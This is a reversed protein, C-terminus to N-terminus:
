LFYVSKNLHFHSIQFHESVNFSTNVRCNSSYEVGDVKGRGRAGFWLVCGLSEDLVTNLPYVLHPIRRKLAEELEDRTVDVEILNWKRHPNMRKLEELSQCASLRDPTKYDTQVKTKGRNIKEFSVNILDIPQTPDLLKDTLVALITCDIGGSFLIGIRAHYCKRNEFALCERCISPTASIRDQLSNELRLVIEDCVNMVEEHELLCRFINASSNKISEKLIDEFNYCYFSDNKILWPSQVSPKVEIKNEFLDELENLQQLHTANLSQWPNLHIEGTLLNM